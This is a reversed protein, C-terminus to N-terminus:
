IKALIGAIRAPKERSEETGGPLISPYRFNPWSRMRCCREWNM